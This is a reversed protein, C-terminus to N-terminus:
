SFRNENNGYKKKGYPVLEIFDIPKHGLDIVLSKVLEGRSQAVRRNVDLMEITEILTIREEEDQKSLM